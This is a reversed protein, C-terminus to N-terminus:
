KRLYNILKKIQSSNEILIPYLENYEQQTILGSKQLFFLQSRLEGGSGKAIKLYRAFMPDSNYEFGEAINSSISLSSRVVQDRIGWEKKLHLSQSLYFIRIAIDM